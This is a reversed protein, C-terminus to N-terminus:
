YIEDKKEKIFLTFTDLAKLVVKFPAEIIFDMIFVFINVSAFKMSMWRGLSVIPLTIMDWVFVLFKQEKTQVIWRRAVFRVRLGFYSVFTLFSLFLTIGVINFYLKNLIWLITSFSMAFVTFYLIFAVYYWVGKTQKAQLFIEPHGNGYVISNVGAIIKTTNKQDPGTISTTMAFLLLPHFIINIGIALYNIDNLIIYDYPFEVIFALIIKTAFIYIIARCANKRIRKRIKKYENEVSERITFHLQKPDNLIQESTEKHKSVIKRLTSFYIIDNKLKPILRIHLTHKIEKEMLANVESFEEAIDKIREDNEETAENLETWEPYHMIWLRYFLTADDEKLLGRRCALYIQIDRKAKPLQSRTINVRKKVTSYFAKLIAEDTTAPFLLNEIELTALSITRRKFISRHESPYTHEILTSFFTTKDIIEQVHSIVQEPLEGNPLYGAQILEVLFSRSNREPTLEITLRRRLIRGIATRRLLHEEKYDVAYRAKEYYQAAKSAIEGVEITPEHPKAILYSPYKYNKITDLLTKIETSVM